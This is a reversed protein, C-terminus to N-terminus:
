FITLGVVSAISCLNLLTRRPKQVTILFEIIFVFITIRMILYQTSEAIPLVQLSLLILVILLDQTTLSFVHKRSIRICLALFSLSLLLSLDLAYRWVSTLGVLSAHYFISAAACSCVVRLLWDSQAAGRRFALFYLTVLIFAMSVTLKATATDVSTNSAAGVAIILALALGLSLASTSNSYHEGIPRFFANRREDRAARGARIHVLQINKAGILCAMVLASFGAYYALVLLEHQFRLAYALGLLGLQACYYLGVAEHKELGLRVLRHHLHSSDAKFPSKGNKVRIFTVYLTDLVPLGLILLPLAASHSGAESQTAIIALSAAMLGIFQSGSDGMFVTAPHTNYRLFGAIGGAISVALITTSYEDAFYSLVAVLGLSLFTSGGALGDLGDSLNVANTVGVLFFFTLPYAIWNPLLEVGMGPLRDIVVGSAIVLLAAAFQGGFKWWHNLNRADDLLGFLFILTGALIVGIIPQASAPSLFLALLASLYIAIGGARSISAVHSKRDTDPHDMLGLGESHRVLVPILLSCTFLAVLFSLSHAM